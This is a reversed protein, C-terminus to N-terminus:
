TVRSTCTIERVVLQASNPNSATVLDWTIDRGDNLAYAKDIGFPNVLVVCLAILAAVAALITARTRRPSRSSHKAYTATTAKHKSRTRTRSSTAPRFGPM